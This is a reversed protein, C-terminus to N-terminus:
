VNEIELPNIPKEIDSENHRMTHIAQFVGIFDKSLGKAKVCLNGTRSVEVNYEKGDENQTMYSSYQDETLIQRLITPSKWATLILRAMEEFQMPIDWEITLTTKLDGDDPIDSTITPSHWGGLLDVMCGFICEIHCREEVTLSPYAGLERPKLQHTIEPTVSYRSSYLSHEATTKIVDWLLLNVSQTLSGYKTLYGSQKFQRITMLMANRHMVIRSELFSIANQNM